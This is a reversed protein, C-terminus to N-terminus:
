GLNACVVAGDTMVSSENTRTLWASYPTPFPRGPPGFHVSVPTPHFSGGAGMREAVARM